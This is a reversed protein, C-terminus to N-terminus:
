TRDSVSSRTWKTNSRASRMTTVAPRLGRSSIHHHPILRLSETTRAARERRDRRCVDGAAYGFGCGARAAGAPRINTSLASGPLSANAINDNGTRADARLANIYTNWAITYYVFNSQAIRGAPMPDGNPQTTSYRFRIEITIPDSFLSEYISIARNITAEIAASNPNGTISSDFTAQIILGTTAETTATM